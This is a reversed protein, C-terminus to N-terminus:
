IEKKIKGVTEELERVGEVEEKLRRVEDELKVCRLRLKKNEELETIKDM